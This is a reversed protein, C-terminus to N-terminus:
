VKTGQSIEYTVWYPLTADKIAGNEDVNENLKLTLTVNYLGQNEETVVNTIQANPFNFKLKDDPWQMILAESLGDDMKKLAPFNAVTDTRYTISMTPNQTAIISYKIGSPTNGSEVMEVGNGTDFAFKIVEGGYSGYTVSTNELLLNDTLNRIFVRTFPVDSESTQPDFTGAYSAEAIVEMGAQATIQINGMNGYSINKKINTGDDYPQNMQFTMCTQAASNSPFYSHGLGVYELTSMGCSRLITDLPHAATVDPVSWPATFNMTTTDKGMPTNHGGFQGNAYHRETDAPETNPTYEISEVNVELYDASTIIEATGRTSELKGGLQTQTRRFEAM